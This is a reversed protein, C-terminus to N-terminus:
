HEGSDIDSRSCVCYRLLSSYGSVPFIYVRAPLLPSACLPVPAGFSPSTFSVSVRYSLALFSVVCIVNACKELIGSPGRFPPM